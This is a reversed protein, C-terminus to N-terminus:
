CKSNILSLTTLGSIPLLQLLISNKLGVMLLLPLVIHTNHSPLVASNNNINEKRKKEKKSSVVYSPTYALTM